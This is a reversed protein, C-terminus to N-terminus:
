HAHDIEEIKTTDLASAVGKLMQLALEIGAANPQTELAETVAAVLIEVLNPPYKRIAAKVGAVNIKGALAEHGIQYTTTGPNGCRRARSTPAVAINAAAACRVRAIM